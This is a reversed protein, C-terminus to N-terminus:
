APTIGGRGMEKCRWGAPWVGSASTYPMLFKFQCLSCWLSLSAKNWLCPFPPPPLSLSSSSPSATCPCSHTTLPIHLLPHRVLILVRREVKVSWSWYGARIVARWRSSAVEAHVMSQDWRTKWEKERERKNKKERERERKRGTVDDNVRERESERWLQVSFHSSVLQPNLLTMENGSYLLFYPCALFSVSWFALFHFPLPSSSGAEISVYNPDEYM